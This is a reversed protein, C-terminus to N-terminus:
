FPLKPAYKGTSIRIIMGDIYLKHLVQGINQKDKRTLNGGIEQYLRRVSFGGKTRDVFARVKDRLTDMGRLEVIPAIDAEFYTLLADLKQEIRDLQEKEM